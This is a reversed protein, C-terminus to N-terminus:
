GEHSQVIPVPWRLFQSVMVPLLRKLYSEPSTLLYLAPM